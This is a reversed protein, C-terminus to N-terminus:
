YVGKSSGSLIGNAYDLNRETMLITNNRSFDDFVQVYDLLEIAPNQRWDFNYTLSRNYWYMAYSAVDEALTQNTILVNDIEETRAVLSSSATFLNPMTLLTSQSDVAYGKVIIQVTTNATVKLRGARAFLESSILRATNVATPDGNADVSFVEVTCNKAFSSYKITFEETGNIIRQGKYVESEEEATKYSYISTEIAKICTETAIEPTDHLNTLDISDVKPPDAVRPILSMNQFFRINEDCWKREPENGPGYTATLDLYMFADVNFGSANNKLMVTQTGSTAEYVTGILTWRNVGINSEVLNPTIRENNVYLGAETGTIVDNVPNIYFRCYIKHGAIGSMNQSLTGGAAVKCSQTGTILQTPDLACGTQTWGNFDLNFAANSYQNIGTKLPSVYKLHLKGATDCTLVSQSAQAIVRLVEKHKGIPLPATTYINMLEIDIEYDTIGADKFVDEACEYMSISTKPFTGRIYENLTLDDIRDRGSFSAYLAGKNIKWDSLSALCLPVAERSDDQFVQTLEVEIPQRLQLYKAFGEPNLIDITKAQNEIQFDIEGSVIQNSFLDVEQTYNLSIIENDTYRLYLGPIDEVIHVRRFPRSTALFIFRVHDYESIQILTSWVYDKNGRVHETHLLIGRYYFEVDFDMLVSDVNKDFYFTRGTTNIPEDCYCDLTIREKFQGNEDSLPECVSGYQGPRLSMDPMIRKTGDLLFLGDELTGYDYSGELVDDYLQGIFNCFAPHSFTYRHGQRANVDVLKFLVTAIFHRAYDRTYVGQKYKASTQLM